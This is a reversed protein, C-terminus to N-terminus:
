ALLYRMLIFVTFKINNVDEQQKIAALFRNVLPFHVGERSNIRTDYIILGKVFLRGSHYSCM